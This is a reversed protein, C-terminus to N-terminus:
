WRVDSGDEEADGTSYRYRSRPGQRGRHSRKAGWILSGFVVVDALGFAALAADLHPPTFDFTVTSTGAPLVVQQFLPGYPEVRLPHGADTAQWGPLYLEDRVLVESHSCEVHAASVSQLGIRCGGSPVSYLPTPDPLEFIEATSDSFVLHLLRTTTSPPFAFAPPTVVYKVGVAEYSVLHQLLEVTPSPGAPNATALGTFDAPDTNTNLFTRIYSAWTSPIPLDNTALESVGYYSGYNPQVPGLTYFRDDGLHTRLYAILAVDVHVGRPTSLEPTIFLALSDVVVLAVLGYATAQGPRIATVAVMAAIVVLAWLLSADSWAHIHPAAAIRRLEPRIALYAVVVLGVTAAGALAVLRVAGKAALLDDIGMVALFAVALDVSAPAYRYFATYKVGPILNVLDLTLGGHYTRVLVVLVWAALAFRLARHRRGGLGVLALLVASVPLYGGGQWFTQLTGSRDFATFGHIPGAVYPLILGPLATRSDLVRTAFETSHGGVYSHPLYDVFAVLIPAALLVGIGVGAGVEFLLPRWRGRRLQVARVAVWLMAFLGDIFAMEPFGAYISLALAVAVVVWGRGFRGVSGDAAQEVGLLLLPLFAVPNGPAHFLWAYTGNLAFLVAGVFAPVDGRAFRRFLAYASWGAVLELIMRFYVQGDPLVTLLTPPFLAASQMEGALPAGVGEYPDWWPARASTVDRAATAGLAQATYGINPDIYNSGPFLSATTTQGLEGVTNVPNPNLLHTAYTFNALVVVVLIGLYPWPLRLSGVRGWSREAM